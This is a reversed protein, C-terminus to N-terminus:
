GFWLGTEALASPDIHQANFESQEAMLALGAVTFAGSDLLGVYYAREAASPGQGIVNTYFLDVVARWPQRRCGPPRRHGPQVLEQEGMGGDLLRLRHGRLGARGTRRPRVGRGPHTRHIGAHGDLDLALGADAFQVARHRGAPRTRRQRAISCRSGRPGHAVSGTAAGAYRSTSATAATPIM